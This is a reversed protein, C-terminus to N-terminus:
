ASSSVRNQIFNLQIRPSLTDKLRKGAKSTTSASLASGPGAMGIM